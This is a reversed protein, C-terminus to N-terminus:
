KNRKREQIMEHVHKLRAGFAYLNDLTQEHVLERAVFEGDVNTGCTVVLLQRAEEETDVSYVPLFGKPCKPGFRVVV